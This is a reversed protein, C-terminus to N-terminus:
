FGAVCIARRDLIEITHIKRRAGTLYQHGYQPSRGVDAALHGNTNLVVSEYRGRIGPAVRGGIKKDNRRRHEIKEGRKRPRDATDDARRPKRCITDSM